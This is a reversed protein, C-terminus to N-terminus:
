NKECWNLYDTVMKRHSQLDITQIFQARNQDKFHIGFEESGLIDIVQAHTPRFQVILQEDRVSIKRSDIQKSIDSKQKDLLLEFPPSPINKLTYKKRDNMFEIVPGNDCRLTFPGSQGLREQRGKLVPRSDEMAMEWASPKAGNNVVNLRILDEYGIYEIDDNTQTVTIEYFEPDIEMETVYDLLYGSFVQAHAEVHNFTYLAMSYESKYQHVGFESKPHFFRYEGGLFAITCASFCSAAYSDNWTGSYEGVDTSFGLNRITSGLDVADEVSGGDSNLVVRAHKLSHRSVTENFEKVVMTNIEGEIYIEALAEPENKHETPIDLFRVRSANPDVEPASAGFYVYHAMGVFVVPILYRLLTAAKHNM